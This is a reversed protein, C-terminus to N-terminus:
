APQSLKPLAVRHPGEVDGVVVRVDHEVPQAVVGVDDQDIEFAFFSLPGSTSRGGGSYSPGTSRLSALEQDRWRRTTDESSRMDLADLAAPRNGTLAFVKASRFLVDRNTPALAMAETAHREARARRGLNAECLAILVISFPDRSNVALATHAV